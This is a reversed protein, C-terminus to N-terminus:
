GMRWYSANLKVKTASPVPPPNAAVPVVFSTSPRSEPDAARSRGPIAAIGPRVNPQRPTNMTVELKLAAPIPVDFPIDQRCYCDLQEIDTRQRVCDSILRAHLSGTISACGGAEVPVRGRDTVAILPIHRVGTVV